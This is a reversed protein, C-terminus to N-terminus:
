LMHAPAHSHSQRHMSHRSRIQVHMHSPPTLPTLPVCEAPDIALHSPSVPAKEKRDAHGIHCVPHALSVSRESALRRGASKPFLPPSRTKAPHSKITSVRRWFLIVMFALGAVCSGFSVRDTELGSKPEETKQWM